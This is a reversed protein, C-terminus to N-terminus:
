QKEFRGTAEDIRIRFVVLKVEKSIPTTRKELAHRPVTTESSTFPHVRTVLLQLADEAERGSLEEYNGRVIVSQWNAMNHVRDVEFCIGHPRSRMLTVKKGERTHAYICSGDYVYTIPVIYTEHGDSCGVRGIVESRLLYDIQNKNLAGIM